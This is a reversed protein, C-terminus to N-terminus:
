SAASQNLLELEAKKRAAIAEEKTAFRGIQKKKILAVWRKRGSEWYVGPVGSKNNPRPIVDPLRNRAAEEEESLKQLNAIAINFANGDKQIICYGIPDEGYFLAWAVRALKYKKNEISIRLCGRGSSGGFTGAITGKLWSQNRYPTAKWRVIGMEPDYDLLERLREIPPLPTYSTRAMASLATTSM